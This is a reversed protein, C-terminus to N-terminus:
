IEVLALNYKKIYINDASKFCQNKKVPEVEIEAKM